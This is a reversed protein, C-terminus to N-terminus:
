GGDRAPTRTRIAALAGEYCATYLVPHEEFSGHRARAIAVARDEGERVDTALDPTPKDAFAAYSLRSLEPVTDRITDLENAMQEMLEFGGNPQRCLEEHRMWATHMKAIVGLLAAQADTMYEESM